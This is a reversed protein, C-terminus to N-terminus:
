GRQRERFAAVKARNGCAASSCFRRRHAKTRDLFWLTCGTGACEKLLSPKELTVLRAVHWALLALLADASELTLQEIITLGDDSTVVERRWTGRALHANLAAIEEGYNRRPAVRWRELWDRTRERLRRAQAATSDLAKGGFRQILKSAAGEEIIRAGVMWDLLAQGHPITEMQVGDPAFATNLFDVAPHGGLYLPNVTPVM